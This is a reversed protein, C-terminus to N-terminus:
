YISFGDLSYCPLAEGAMLTRVIGNMVQARDEPTSITEFSFGFHILAGPETGNGFTGFYQIAAAGGRTYVLATESGNIPAILDPWGPFYPADGGGYGFEINCFASGHGIGEVSYIGSDDALFEAKLWQEYFETDAPSSPRAVLDWGIENGSVFLRNGAELFDKVLTQEAPTFTSDQTSEEALIWNVMDYSRLFVQNAARDNSATDFAFGNAAQANGHFAVIHHGQPGGFSQRPWREYGDVNLITVDGGIRAGYIESHYGEILGVRAVRFWAMDGEEYGTFTANSSTSPLASEDRALTWNGHGDPSTYVRFPLGGGGQWSVTMTGEEANGLVALINVKAPPDPVGVLNKNALVWNDPDLTVAAVARGDTEIQWSQIKDENMLTHIEEDGTTYRVEFDLPMRYAAGAQRQELGITLTGTGDQEWFYDYTPRVARYLWQNFFWSVDEGITESYVRILDDTDATGYLLDPDAIFNRAGEFFLDDGVVKRFMHLVWAAKTYVIRYNFEDARSSVIPFADSTNWANIFQHYYARGYLYEYALAEMYTAWGENLWLHDYHRLTVADGFWMHAIEHINRRHFPTALDGNPMSSITQHEMGFTLGWTSTWYKEEIFPYEGFTDAFFEIIEITNPIEGSEAAHSQPYVYHAVEMTRSGDRSVYAGVAPRYNTCTISVLYSAVPYQSVWRYTRTGDDNATNSVLSGMSTAFLPWGNYSQDPVTISFDTTFKDEPIDKSPLWLRADYPQNNTYILPIGGGHTSRRFSRNPVPTGSYNVSVTFEDGENQPTDLDIYIRGSSFSHGTVSDNSTAGHITMNGNNTNFDLAVQELGDVLSKITYKATADPINAASMNLTIDLELHLMEVQLQLPDAAPQAKQAEGSITRVFSGFHVEEGTGDLSFALVRELHSSVGPGPQLTMTTKGPPLADSAVMYWAGLENFVPDGFYPEGDFELTWWGESNGGDNVLIAFASRTKEK